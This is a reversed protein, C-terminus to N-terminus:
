VEITSWSNLARIAVEGPDERREAVLGPQPQDRAEALLPRLRNHTQPIARRDRALGHGLMQLDELGGSQRSAGAGAAFLNPLDLGVAERIDLAIQRQNRILPVGRGAAQPLEHLGVPM